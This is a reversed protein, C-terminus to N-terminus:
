DVVRLGFIVQGRWLDNVVNPQQGPAPVNPGTARNIRIEITKLIGQSYREVTQCFRAIQERTLARGSASQRIQVVWRKEKGKSGPIRTSKGPDIKFQPLGSDTMAEQILSLEGKQLKSQSLQNTILQVESGAEKLERALRPASEIASRYNAAESHSQYAVFGLVCLLIGMVVVYLKVPDETM